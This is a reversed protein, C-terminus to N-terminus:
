VERADVEGFVTLHQKDEAVKGVLQTQELLVSDLPQRRLVPQAGLKDIRGRDRQIFLSVVRQPLDLM